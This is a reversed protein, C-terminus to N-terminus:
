SKLGSSPNHPMLVTKKKELSDLRSDLDLRTRCHSSAGTGSTAPSGPLFVLVLLYQLCNKLLSAKPNRLLLFSSPAGVHLGDSNLAKPWLSSRPASRLPDRLLNRLNRLLNRPPRTRDGGSRRQTKSQLTQQQPTPKPRRDVGVASVGGSGM